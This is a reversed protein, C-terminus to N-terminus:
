LRLEVGGPAVQRLRAVVQHEARQAQALRGTAQGHGVHGLEVLQELLLTDFAQRPTRRRASITSAPAEANPAARAAGMSNVTEHAALREVAIRSIAVANSAVWESVRTSTLAAADSASSACIARPAGTSTNM